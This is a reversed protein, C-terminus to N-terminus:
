NLIWAHRVDRNWMPSYCIFRSWTRHFHMTMSTSSRAPRKETVFKGVRECGNVASGIMGLVRRENFTLEPSLLSYNDRKEQSKAFFSKEVTNQRSQRIQRQFQGRIVRFAERIPWACGDDGGTESKGSVGTSFPEFESSSKNERHRTDLRQRARVTLVMLLVVM